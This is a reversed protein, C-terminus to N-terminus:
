TDSLTSIEWARYQGRSRGRPAPDACHPSEGHHHLRQPRGTAEPKQNTADPARDDLPRRPRLEMRGTMTREVARLAMPRVSCLWARKLTRAVM